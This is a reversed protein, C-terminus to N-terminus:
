INNLKIIEKFFEELKDKIRHYKIIECNYEMYPLKEYYIEPTLSNVIDVLEKTSNFRIIGREDYGLDELNPCGWYIPLTKTAFADTIKETYWNNYKVNEVGIHFMVDIYCIKKSLWHNDPRGIGGKKFEEKNFDNLTYFWKKPINIQNELKYIEQRLKHGQVLSKAGSLYSIYFSKNPHEENFTEIYNNEVMGCGGEGIHHFLIANSLMNLLEKNWTLIGTFLHANQKVWTHMGFFEDPEHLMIFNYPNIQLQELNQPIYDYFFTIPKNLAKLGDYVLSNEPRFNSFIKM